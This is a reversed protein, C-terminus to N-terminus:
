VFLVLYCTVVEERDLMGDHDIDALEWVARLDEASAQTGERLADAAKGASLRGSADPGAMALKLDSAERSEM